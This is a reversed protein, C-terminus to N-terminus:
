SLEQVNLCIFDTNSLTDWLFLVLLLSLSSSCCSSFKNYPVPECSLDQPIWFRRLTGPAQFGLLLYHWILNSVLRISFERKSPSTLRKTKCLSEVSPDPGGVDRLAIQKSLTESKFRLRMWTYRGHECM